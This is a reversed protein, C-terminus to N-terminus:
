DYYYDGLIITYLIENSPGNSKLPERFVYCLRRQLIRTSNLTSWIVTNGNGRADRHNIITKHLHESGKYEDM